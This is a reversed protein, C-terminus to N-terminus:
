APVLLDTIGHTEPAGALLAVVRYTYPDATDRAFSYAGTVANSTQTQCRFGDVQRVLYVTCGGVVAGASNRTVGAVTKTPNTVPFDPTAPGAIRNLAVIPADIRGSASTSAPVTFSRASIIARAFGPTPATTTAFSRAAVVARTFAVTPAATTAKRVGVSRRLLV